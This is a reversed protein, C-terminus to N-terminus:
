ENVEDIAITAGSARALRLGAAAAGLGLVLTAAVYVLASVWSGETTFHVLSVMIASFTTFAGLLGAGLGARLWDPAARWWRGVLVALVFSGTVNVVLTSIPFTDSSVLTDAGLRLATGLTGGVFVALVAPLSRPM